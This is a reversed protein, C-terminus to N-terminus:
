WIPFFADPFQEIKIKPELTIAIIDFRIEKEHSIKSIYEAAAEYILKEKRRGVAGEPYGFNNNQRTKVETFILMDGEKSIIDLEASGFRWNRELIHHGKENLFKEAIEEGFRGLENHNAMFKNDKVRTAVIM